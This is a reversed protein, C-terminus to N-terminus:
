KYYINTILLVDVSYCYYRSIIMIVLNRIQATVFGRVNENSQETKSSTNCPSFLTQSGQLFLHGLSSIKFSRYANFYGKSSSTFLFRGTIIPAYLRNQWSFHWMTKLPTRNSIMYMCMKPKIVRARYINLVKESNKWM